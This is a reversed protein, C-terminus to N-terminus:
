PNIKKKFSVYSIRKPFCMFESKKKKKKKMQISTFAIIFFNFYTNQITIEDKQLM